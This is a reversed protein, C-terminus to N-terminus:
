PVPFDFKKILDHYTLLMPTPINQQANVKSYAKIACDGLLTKKDASSIIDLHELSACAVIMFDIAISSKWGYTGGLLRYHMHYCRALNVIEQSQIITREKTIYDYLGLLVIRAQRAKHTTTSINRLEKRILTYGYVAQENRIKDKLSDYNAEKILDGYINTDFMVRDM